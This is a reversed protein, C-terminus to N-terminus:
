SRRRNGKPTKRDPGSGGDVKVEEEPTEDSAVSAAPKVAEFEEYMQGPGIMRNTVPHIFAHGTNVKM